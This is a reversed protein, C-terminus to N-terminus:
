FRRGNSVTNKNKERFINMYQRFLFTRNRQYGTIEKLIDM